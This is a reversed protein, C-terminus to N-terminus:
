DDTSFIKEFIDLADGHLRHIHRLSVKMRQAIERWSNFSLYRYSLILREELAPVRSILKEANQYRNFFEVVEEAVEDSNDLVSAVANEVRSFSKDSVAPTGSITSTIKTAMNKLRQHQELKCELERWSILVSNLFEKGTM